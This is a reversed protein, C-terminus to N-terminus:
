ISVMGNTVATLFAGGLTGKANQNKKLVTEYRLKKFEKDVGKYRFVILLRM